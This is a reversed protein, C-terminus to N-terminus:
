IVGLLELALLEEMAVQRALAKLAEIIDTRARQGPHNVKWAVGSGGVHSWRMPWKRGLAKQDITHEPVGGFVDPVYNHGEADFAPGIQMRVGDASVYARYTSAMNGTQYRGLEGELLSKGETALRRGIARSIDDVRSPIKEIVEQFREIPVTITVVSM